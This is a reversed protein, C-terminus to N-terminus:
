CFILLSFTITHYHYFLIYNPQQNIAEKMTVETLQQKSQLEQNRTVQKEAEMSIAYIPQIAVEIEALQSM